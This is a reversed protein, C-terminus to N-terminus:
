LEPGEEGEGQGPALCPNLKLMSGPISHGEYMRRKTKRIDKGKCSEGWLWEREVTRGFSNADESGRM